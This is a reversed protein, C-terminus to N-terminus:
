TFSKLFISMLMSRGIVLVLVFVLAFCMVLVLEPYSLAFQLTATHWFSFYEEAWSTLITFLTSCIESGMRLYNLSTIIATRREKAAAFHLSQLRILDKM